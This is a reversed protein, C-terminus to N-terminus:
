CDQKENVSCLMDNGRTGVLWAQKGYHTPPPHQLERRHVHRVKRIEVRLKAELIPIVNDPEPCSTLRRIARNLLIVSYTRGSRPMSLMAMSGALKGGLMVNIISPLELESREVSIEVYYEEWSTQNWRRVHSRKLQTMGNSYLQNVQVTVKKRTSEADMSWDDIEPYTYGFAEISAVTRSTHFTQNDGQYFPKLPNDATIPAGAATSYQGKSDYTTTQYTDNYNVAQWLAILRDVNCHHLWFIPDFGSYKLEAMTIGIGVHVSGHPDEFSLGPTGTTAMTEFDKITSLVTYVKEKLEDGDVGQLINNPVSSDLQRTTETRNWLEDPTEDDPFYESAHNLPYHQWRYNYLPNPINLQGGPSKITVRPQTTAPPLTADAAWDWYPVRLAQAALM